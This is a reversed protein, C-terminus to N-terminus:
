RQNWLSRESKKLKKVKPKRKEPDEHFFYRLDVTLYNGSVEIFTEETRPTTTYTLKSKYSFTFPRHFSAGLYFTGEKATRYEWGINALLSSQLWSQRVTLQHLRQNVSAVNSPYLDLSTGFATSMFVKDGLRIYVLGQLPIEYGILRFSTGESYNDELDLVEATFNRQVFTIGTEISFYRNLGRRVIMGGSYGPNQSLTYNLGNARQELPGTRVLRLPFMPRFQLGVTSLRKQAQVPESFGTGLVLLLITFLTFVSAKKM